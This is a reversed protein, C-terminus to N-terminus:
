CRAADVVDIQAAAPGRWDDAKIRGLVHVRGSSSLVDGLPQGIARFAIARVCAGTADCLTMALHAAGVPRVDIPAVEPFVFKPEPNGPGFPGARALDEVTGRSVSSLAAPGDHRLARNRLARAVDAALTSALDDTFSQISAQHVTLGAAMAHGGGAILVGNEMARRVAAGLDVGEVSRGSGKGIGKEDLGIVVVPKGYRDKLRGAVIGVVGPHWGEGAVVIVAERDLRSREIAAVAEAQVDAEIDQRAANLAHLREALSRRAAPDPTTLLKFAIDPHGIRGAANIRPGLQFGFAYAGYPAKAGCADALALLGRNAPGAERASLVKLGQSVITRAVGTMPMVDCVLGLGALDLLGRLDPERSADFRGVARLERNVAVVLLFALGAASLNTLGSRDDDRHPNVVALARAPGVGSVQHHDVVIVDLGIAVAADVAADASAGCDVTVALGAGREKLAAFAAASPGYGETMRDPLHAVLSAGVADFYTKLIATATTGDVDYDGFVGVTEDNLIASTIRAAATEMGKLVFPDPLSNRLSPNLFASAEEPAVGRTALIRALLRSADTRRSIEVAASADFPNRIWRAGSATAGAPADDVCYAADAEDGAAIPTQTALAGAQEM